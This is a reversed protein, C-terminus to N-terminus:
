PTVWIVPRVAVNRRTIKMGSQVIKGNYNVFVANSQNCGPTRLWWWCNDYYWEPLNYPNTWAGRAKAYATPRCARAQSVGTEKESFLRGAEGASLLFVRDKVASGADTRYQENDEGTVVAEVLKKQEAETFADNLFTNNLFSRIDSDKWTVSDTSDYRCCDLAYRSILQVKGLKKDLVIWQIPEKGDSTVCDQEYHGFTVIDGVSAKSADTYITEEQIWVGYKDFSYAKGGIIKKGITMTGNTNLYYWNGSIKLWGTQMVGERDLYYWYNNVKKWGTQMIGTDSFYYWKSNLKLWGTQMKGGKLYYWHDNILQWGTEVFGRADFHYWYGDIESWGGTQYSGNVLQYRYKGSEIVWKGTTAAFSSQGAPCLALTLGAALILARIRKGRIKM